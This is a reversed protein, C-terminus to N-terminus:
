DRSMTEQSYVRCFFNLFFSDHNNKTGRCPGVFTLNVAQWESLSYSAHVHVLGLTM